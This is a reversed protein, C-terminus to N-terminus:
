ETMSKNLLIDYGDSSFDEKAIAVCIKPIEKDNLYVKDPIFGVLLSTDGVTKYPIVRIKGKLGCPINVMDDSKLFSLEEYTFLPSLAKLSGVGVPRGTLGDQLANGSDLYGNLTVETNRFIIKLKYIEKQTNLKNLIYDFLLFVGYILFVSGILYKLDMDFYVTGNLYLINKPHLTLELALIGGGFLFTIGNFVLFEKLFQKRTKPIFAILVLVAGLFIKIIVSFVNNLLDVYILLSSLGGLLSSIAVGIKNTPTKLFMRTCVLFLYTFLINLSILVDVYVTVM